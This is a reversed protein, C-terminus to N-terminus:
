HLLVGRRIRDPGRRVLVGPEEWVRPVCEVAASTAEREPRKRRGEGSRRVKRHRGSRSAGSSRKDRWLFIRRHNRRWAVQNEIRNWNAPIPPAIRRPPEERGKRRWKRPWARGCGRRYCVEERCPFAQRPSGDSKPWDATRPSQRLSRRPTAPSSRCPWAAGRRARRRRYLPALDFPNSATIWHFRETWFNEFIQAVAPGRPFSFDGHAGAACM